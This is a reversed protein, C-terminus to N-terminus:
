KEKTLPQLLYYHHTLEPMLIGNLHVVGRQFVTSLNVGLAQVAVLAVVAVLAILLGYEVMTAGQEDGLVSRQLM